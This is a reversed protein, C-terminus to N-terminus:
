GRLETVVQGSTKELLAQAALRAPANAEGYGDYGGRRELVEFFLGNITRTFFHLFEGEGARDYLISEARLREVFSDELAFRAALDEYYNEPIPLQLENPVRDAIAFVDRCSFAIHQAGAGAMREVFRGAASAQAQSANLPLRLSHRDNTLARSVILGRPDNLDARAEPQLGLIARYFLIWSLFEVQPVVQAIHDVVLLGLDAEGAEAYAVFDVEDFPAHEAAGGVFYLLSGGVGRVAPIALEGEGIPGSFPKALLRAAHRAAGAADEVRLALAAVSLGHLLQFSHPFGEDELNLVLNIGGQRHLEVDKSRHRHTCRFGLAHLMERFSASHHRDDVFEIFEISEVRPPRTAHAGLRDDLWLFSRMGDTAVQKASGARFEDSFIEHSIPGAYGTGAIARMMEVVALDGQGPFCRYHRSLFLLDMEIGPADATQVLAIKDAPIAAIADIPCKRALAHFTDLILGVHPHDARRVAEWAQRYDKIHCGWCLAEFGVTIDHTRALEGLEHLDAAVRGMDDIADPSVSSCVLLLRTGLRAMLEFKRRARDFARARLPEPLGEFDRFPQLALIELGLSAAYARVDEPCGGFYTLDNEFIEVGDYGAEAAAALKDGLAGSMCVTAIGRKM